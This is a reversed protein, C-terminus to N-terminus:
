IKDIIESSLRAGCVKAKEREEGPLEEDLELAEGRVGGASRESDDETSNPTKSGSYMGRGRFGNMINRDCNAESSLARM